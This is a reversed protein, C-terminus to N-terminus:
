EYLENDEDVDDREVHGDVSGGSDRARARGNTTRRRGGGSGEAAKEGVPPPDEWATKCVPCERRDRQARFLKGVCHHHLRAHCAWTPCRQGVTVIDRCAACMKIRVRPAEEGEEGEEEEDDNYTEVLWGRLEMIARPTLSYFGARSRQFWGEEEMGSLVHQAQTQTLGGSPVGAQSEGGGGGGGGGPGRALKLAQISPVALVEARPSNNTDFIADLVRKVYAIEDPSHVTAMQTLADSTTNVLAYVRAPAVAAALSQPVASRIEFDFPSLATNLRDLYADLDPGTVDAVTTPRDPSAATEIQAIIPQAQEFTLTQRSLLAQLFARHKHGYSTTADEEDQSM